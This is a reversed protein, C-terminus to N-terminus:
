VWRERGRERMLGSLGLTTHWGANPLLESHRQALSEPLVTLVIGAGLCVHPGLQENSDMSHM